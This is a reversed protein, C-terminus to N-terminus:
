DLALQLAERLTAVGIVQIGEPLTVGNLNNKPVIARKFGLKRACALFHELAETMNDGFPHEACMKSEDLVSRVALSGKLNNLMEDFNGDVFDHLKKDM